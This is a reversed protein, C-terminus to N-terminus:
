ALEKARDTGGEALGAGLVTRWNKPFGMPVLDVSPYRDVIECLRAFREPWAQPWSRLHLQRLVLFTPFEKKGGFPRDEQYLVPRKTMLRNYFRSHHACVNRVYTLHEIWSKLYYPKTGFASAIGRLASAEKLNGYLKSLTGLSAVEVAAWVPLAGNKEMHHVVFPVGDRLARKIERDLSGLSGRYRDINKFLESRELAYPGHLMALQQAFQARLKIEVPEIASSVWNRLGSDVQMVNWVDQFAVDQGFRGNSELTLWYGRLRYYNVSTLGSIAEEECPVLLGKGRLHAVQESVSLVPNDLLHFSGAQNAADSVRAHPTSNAVLKGYMADDVSAPAGSLCFSGAQDAEGNGPSAHPTSDSQLTACDAVADFAKGGENGEHGMAATEGGRRDPFPGRILSRDSAKRCLANAICADVIAHLAGRNLAESQAASQCRALNKSEAGAASWEPHCASM